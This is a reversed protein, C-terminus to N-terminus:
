RRSAEEKITYTRHPCGVFHKHVVLDFDWEVPTFKIEFCWNKSVAYVLIGYDVDPYNIDDEDQNEFPAFVEQFYNGLGVEKPIELNWKKVIDKIKSELIDNYSIIIPEEYAKQLGKEEFDFEIIMDLLKPKLTVCISGLDTWCTAILENCFVKVEFDKLFNDLKFKVGFKKNRAKIAKILLTKM